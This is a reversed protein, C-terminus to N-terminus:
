AVHQTFEISGNSQLTFNCKIYLVYSSIHYICYPIHMFSPSFALRIFLLVHIFSPKNIIHLPSPLSATLLRQSHDPFSNVLVFLKCVNNMKVRICVVGCVWYACEDTEVGGVLALCVFIFSSAFNRHLIWSFAYFILNIASGTIGRWSILSGINLPRLWRPSQDRSTYWIPLSM